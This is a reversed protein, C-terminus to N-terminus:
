KERGRVLIEKRLRSFLDETESDYVPDEKDFLDFDISDFEEQSLNKIVYPFFTKNETEIHHRYTNLFVNLVPTIDSEVLSSASRANLEHRISHTLQSLKKHESILDGIVRLEDPKHAMVQRLLLDEKPHHCTDPFTLFYDIILEILKFDVEMGSEMLNIQRELVDLVHGIHEHEISLLRLADSNRDVRM